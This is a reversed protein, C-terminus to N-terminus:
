LEKEEKRNKAYISVARVPIEQRATKLIAYKEKEFFNERNHFIFTKFIM